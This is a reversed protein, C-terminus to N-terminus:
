VKTIRIYGPVYAASGGVGATVVGTSANMYARVSYTRSGSAPTRRRAARVPAITQSASGYVVAIEGISVGDEFLAVTIVRTSASNDIYPAFFEIMASSVGDFTVAAATVVTNATGETVASIAVPATFETYNLETGPMKLALSGTGTRMQTLAAQIAAMATNFGLGSPPDLSTNYTPISDPSTPAGSADAM